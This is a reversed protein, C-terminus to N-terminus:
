GAIPLWGEVGAPRSVANAHGGSEFQRVWLYFIGGLCINMLLFAFQFGRRLAQSYDRGTRRVLKKKAKPKEAKRKAATGDDGSAPHIRYSTSDGHRRREPSLRFGKDCPPHSM